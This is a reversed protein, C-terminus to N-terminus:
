NNNSKVIQMNNVNSLDHTLYNGVVLFVVGKKKKPEHPNHTKQGERKKERTITRAM